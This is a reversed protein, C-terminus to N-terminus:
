MPEKQLFKALPHPPIDEPTAMSMNIADRLERKAQEEAREMEDM